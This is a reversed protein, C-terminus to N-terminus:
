KAVGDEKDSQEFGHIGNLPEGSSGTKLTAPLTVVFTAQPERFELLRTEFFGLAERRFTQYQKCEGTVRGGHDCHV